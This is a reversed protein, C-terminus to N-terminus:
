KGIISTIKKEIDEKRKYRERRKEHFNIHLGHECTLEMLIRKLQMTSYRRRVKGDM